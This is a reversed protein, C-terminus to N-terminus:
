LLRARSSRVFGTRLAGNSMVFLDRESWSPEDPRINLVKFYLAAMLDAMGLPGPHGSGAEALM